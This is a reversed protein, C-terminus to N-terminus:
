HREVMAISAHGLTRAVVPLPMGNMVAHSAYSHRLQHFGVDPKINATACAARMPRSQESKAWPAGRNLLMFEEGGRGLTLDAFFTAAEETLTIDRTKGSKSTVIHLKGRAYDRCRLGALESYRAGSLLAAHVLARFGSDADAARILRQAQEITLYGPRAANVNPFPKVRRWPTDDSVHGAQFARNLAGKLTTLTRNITAKRARKDLTPKYNQERGSGTRLLAPQEALKDRWHVIRATTLDTLKVKGLSPLILKAARREADDGTVKHAKLWAVYEAIADGVDMARRQRPRYTEQAHSTLARQQAQAFNLVTEGDADALDDASGLRTKRYREQGLYRRALYVGAEEKRKRRYALHLENPILTKFHMRGLPLRTRAARTEIKADTVTRPMLPESCIDLL